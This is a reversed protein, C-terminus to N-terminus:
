FISDPSAYIHKQLSTSFCCSVVYPGRVSCMFSYFICNDEMDKKYILLLKRVSRFIKATKHTTHLFRLFSLYYSAVFGYFVQDNVM